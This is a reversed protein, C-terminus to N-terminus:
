ELEKEFSGFPRDEERKKLALLRAVEPSDEDKDLLHALERGELDLEVTLAGRLEEDNAFLERLYPVLDTLALQQSLHYRRMLKSALSRKVTRVAKSRSMRVLWLPFRYPTFGSYRERKAMAVGATMMDSAYSWFGYHQRRSVRGLYIDARSLAEFGAALDDGRRYEVPLNEDVWLILSEPTEDLARASERPRRADMSKFIDRLVDFTKNRPDRYGLAKVDEDRLETRGLALAELDNVASRLDGNASRAVFEFIEDSVRVSESRCIERLVNRVSRSDLRQFKIERVLSKISSSRRTLGYYDNVILVIPQVTRRIADVIAGIGGSDQAGFLNDAEDLIILKLGGKERTMYEGEDTFTEAMAGMTAVKRIAQANRKDSANLEIATWGFDSALALAASTKGVGAEGILVVAKKKPTGAEWSRAWDELEKVAKPNGAIDALRKPRYKESWSM